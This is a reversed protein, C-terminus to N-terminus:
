CFTVRGNLYRFKKDKPQRFFKFKYKFGGNLLKKFPLFFVVRGLFLFM